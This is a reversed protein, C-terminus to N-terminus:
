SYFSFVTSGSLLMFLHWTLFVRMTQTQTNIQMQSYQVMLTHSDAVTPTKGSNLSLFINTMLPFPNSGTMEQTLSSSEVVTGALCM